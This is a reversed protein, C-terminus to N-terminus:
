DDVDGIGDAEHATYADSIVTEVMLDLIFGCFFDAEALSLKLFEICPHRFDQFFDPIQLLAMYRMFVHGVQLVLSRKGISLPVMLTVHLQPYLKIALGSLVSIYLSADKSRLWVVPVRFFIAGRFLAM